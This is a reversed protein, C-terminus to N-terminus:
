HRGAGPTLTAGRRPDTDGAALARFTDEGVERVHMFLRAAKFAVHRSSHGAHCVPWALLAAIGPDDLCFRFFPHLRM